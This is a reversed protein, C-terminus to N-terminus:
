CSDVNQNRETTEYEVNRSYDYLHQLTFQGSNVIHQSKLSLM